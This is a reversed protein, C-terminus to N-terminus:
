NKKLSLSAEAMPIPSKGIVVAETNESLLTRSDTFGNWKFLNGDWLTKEHTKFPVWYSVRAFGYVRGSLSEMTHSVTIPTSAAYYTESGINTLAPTVGASINLDYDLLTMEAGLGGEVSAVILSVEVGGEAYIATDFNPKLTIEGGSSDSDVILDVGMSGKVGVTGVANVTPIIPIKISYEWNVNRGTLNKKTKGSATKSVPSFLDDGVLSAEMTTIAQNSSRSSSSSTSGRRGGGARQGFGRPGSPPQIGGPTNTASLDRTGGAEVKAHFLSMKKGILFANIDANATIKRLKMDAHKTMSADLDISFWDPDGYSENLLTYKKDITQPIVITAAATGSTAVGLNGAAQSGLTGGKKGGKKGGGKIQGAPPRTGSSGGTSTPPPISVNPNISATAGSSPLSAKPSNKSGNFTLPNSRVSNIEASVDRTTVIPKAGNMGGLQALHTAQSNLNLVVPNLKVLPTKTDNENDYLSAGLGTLTSELSNTGDLLDTAKLKGNPTDVMTAPSVAEAGLLGTTTLYKRHFTKAPKKEITLKSESVAVPGLNKVQVPKSTGLAQLTSHTRGQDAFALCM